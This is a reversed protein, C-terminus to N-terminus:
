DHNQDWDRGANYKCDELFGEAVVVATVLTANGVAFAKVAAWGIPGGAAIAVVSATAGAVFTGVAVNYARQAGRCSNKIHNSRDDTNTELQDWAENVSSARMEVEALMQEAEAAVAAPDWTVPGNETMEVLPDCPDVCPQETRRPELDVLGTPGDAQCAASFLILGGGM